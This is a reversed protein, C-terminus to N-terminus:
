TGVGLSGLLRPAPAAAGSAAKFVAIASKWAVAGASRTSTATQAGTASLVKYGADSTMDGGGGADNVRAGVTTYTADLTFTKANDDMSWVAIAIEDAQATAATTGSPMSTGTGSNTASVDFPSDALGSVEVIQWTTPRDGANTKTIVVQTSTTMANVVKAWYFSPARAAGAVVRTWTNGAADSMATTAADENLVLAVLFNGTTPASSLTLEITTDANDQSSSAACRKVFAAAM